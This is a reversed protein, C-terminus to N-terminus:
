GPEGFSGADDRRRHKRVNLAKWALGPHERLTAQMIPDSTLLDAAIEGEENLRRLFELERNDLPLVMSLRERCETVLRDAWAAVDRRAPARDARVM